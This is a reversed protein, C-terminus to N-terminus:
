KDSRGKHQMDVTWILILNSNRPNESCTVQEGSTKPFPLATMYDSEIKDRREFGHGDIEIQGDQPIAVKKSDMWGDM